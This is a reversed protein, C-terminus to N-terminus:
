NTKILSNLSLPQECSMSPATGFYNNLRQKRRMRRFLFVAAVGILILVAAIIGGILASHSSKKPAAV